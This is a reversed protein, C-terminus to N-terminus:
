YVAMTYGSTEAKSAVTSYELQEAMADARMVVTTDAMTAAKPAAMLVARMLAMWPESHGVMM